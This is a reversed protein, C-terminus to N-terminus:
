FEEWVAPDQDATRGDPRGLATIAAVSAEDLVISTDFNEVQRKPHASKPLPVVGIARHWALVIQAPTAEYRAAIETVTPEELLATGRGLPSWGETIIGHEHNYAITELNPFYPHVEIQNVVPRVGTEADLRDLHEPLFNCVGIHRVIGSERADILAQWAEVYRNVRPNPWHILHLDLYDLGVRFVSEEICVRAEDYAHHRGPLKSTVLVQDRDIGSLRVAKGVAGENEYNFATDLLRYGAHLGSVVAEAGVLGNLGYTGLGVAPLELGDHTDLDPM